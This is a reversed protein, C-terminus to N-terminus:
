IGLSEVCYSCFSIDCDVAVTFVVPSPFHLSVQKPPMLYCMGEPTQMLFNFM